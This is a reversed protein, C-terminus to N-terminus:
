SVWINIVAEAHDRWQEWDQVLYMRKWERTRDIDLDIGLDRGM